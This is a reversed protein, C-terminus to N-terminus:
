QENLPWDPPPPQLWNWTCQYRVDLWPTELRQQSDRKSILLADLTGSTLLTREVPWASHGTHMMQEIGKLLYTFHMFPRVDQSRFLTSETTGDDAYEWAASWEAVAGNLTLINARLGDRYDIIFLIPEPVLERLSKGTSLPRQQLRSLAANLLRRDYVGQAEAQWVAEGVVCQVAAVGTENGARREALSQVAELAHFGYTDLRHYSVAVIQKLSAGRRVDVPPDRWLVPLSSGAMMPIKLERARDYIWKADRWNDAIHKDHFIPVVRGSREMVSAIEGFLRRKPFQFQGTDSEPYQGHEAILLVGDVALRDTGLTLADAVSKSIRFSHEAALKRSIDNEPVQDTYVSVLELSPVRGKGDLTDTKLLRTLIVDAHSNHRYETTIGAVQLVRRAAAHSSDPQERASNDASGVDDFMLLMAILSMRVMVTESEVPRSTCQAEKVTYKM